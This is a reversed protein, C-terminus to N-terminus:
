QTVGMYVGGAVLAISTVITSALFINKYLKEEDRQETLVLSRKLALNLDSRLVQTLENCRLQSEKLQAFCLDQNMKLRHLCASPETNLFSQVDAFDEVSLCFGEYKAIKGAGVYHAELKQNNLPLIAFGLSTIYPILISIM